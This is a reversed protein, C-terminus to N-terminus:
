PQLELRKIEAEIEVMRTHITQEKEILAKIYPRNKYKRKNRRSQFGEDDDIAQKQTLLRQYEKELADKRKKLEKKRAIQEKQIADEAERQQYDSETTPQASNDAPAAYQYENQEMVELRKNEPVTTLDNTYHMVGNDDVYRYMEAAAPFAVWLWGSLM